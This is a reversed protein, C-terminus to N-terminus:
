VEQVAFHLFVNKVKVSKNYAQEVRQLVKMATEYQCTPLLLLYQSDSYRTLVDGSRLSDVMVEQLIQMGEALVKRIYDENKVRSSVHVEGSIMALFVSVGLRASRREELQYIERFVGYDCLFAGERRGQQLDTIAEGISTQGTQTRKMLEEHVRELKPMTSNGLHEFMTTVASRYVEQAGKYDDLGMLAEIKLVYVEEDLPELKLIKDAQRRMEEYLGEEKLLKLLSVATERYMTRYYTGQYLVWVSGGIERLFSGRYIDLAEAMYRIQESREQAEDSKRLLEVFRDIDLDVEIESNWRYNSGDTQVFSAGAEGWIKKLMARMRFILGRLSALPDQMEEESDSYLFDILANASISEGRRMILGALLQQQLKPATMRGGVGSEADIIELEGLMNVRLKRIDGM